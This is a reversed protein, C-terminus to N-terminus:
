ELLPNDLRLGHGRVTAIYTHNPDIETIRTRLRRILADLAQNSIEFAVDEGWVGIMLDSRSVVGGNNQYIIKLLQFQSASLPPLIEQNNVWVRRSHKELQLQRPSSALVAPPKADLPLTADSSLYVFKQALAIHVIDGDRLLAPQKIRQGNVHIGNKSGLDKILIGDEAPIIRAHIRSVQRDSIHIDCNPERGLTIAGTIKWRQGDLQGEHGVFIPIDRTAYKM